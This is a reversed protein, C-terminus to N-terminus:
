NQSGLPPIRDAGADRRNDLGHIFVSSPGGRKPRTRDSGVYYGGPEPLVRVAPLGGHRIRGPLWRALRRASQPEFAPEADISPNSRFTPAM